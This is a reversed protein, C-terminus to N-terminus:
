GLSPAPAEDTPSSQTERNNPESDVGEPGKEKDSRDTMEKRAWNEPCAAAKDHSCQDYGGIKHRPVKKRALTSVGRTRGKLKKMRPATNMQPTVRPPSKRTLRLTGGITTAKKKMAMPPRASM